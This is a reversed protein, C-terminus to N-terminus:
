IILVIRLAKNELLEMRKRLKQSMYRNNYLQLTLNEKLRNMTRDAFEKQCLKCKFVTM